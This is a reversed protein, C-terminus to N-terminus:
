VCKIAVYNTAGRVTFYGTFHELSVGVGKSAGAAIGGFPLVKWAGPTGYLLGFGVSTNNTITVDCGVPNRSSLKFSSPSFVPRGKEDLTITSVPASSIGTISQTLASATTSPNYSEDGSYNATLAYSGPTVGPFLGSFPLIAKGLTSLPETWFYGEDMLFEVTGTPIGTAPAVPKVTATIKGENFYTANTNSSALTIATDAKNVVQTYPASVVETGGGTPTFTATIPDSGVDIAKDALSAKGSRVEVQGLFIDADTDSFAMTGTIQSQPRSPDVVTATLIIRQGFVSPNTSSTVEVSPTAAIASAAGAVAIGLAVCGAILLLSVRSM